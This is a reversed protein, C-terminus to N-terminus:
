RGIIASVDFVAMQRYGARTTDVAIRKGLASWRPHLDCRFEGDFRAPSYLDALELITVDAVRLLLLFQRRCIEPYTDSVIWSRDPSYSPHGDQEVASLPVTDHGAAGDRYLRYRYTDDEPHWAYALM